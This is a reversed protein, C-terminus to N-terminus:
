GLVNINPNVRVDGTHKDDSEICIKLQISIFNDDFRPFNAPHLVKHKMFKMNPKYIRVASRKRRTIEKILQETGNADSM